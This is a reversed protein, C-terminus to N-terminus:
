CKHLKTGASKPLKPVQHQIYFCCSSNLLCCQVLFLFDGYSICILHLNLSCKLQTFWLALKLIYRSDKIKKSTNRKRLKTEKKECPNLVIEYNLFM